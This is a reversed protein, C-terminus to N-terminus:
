HQKRVAQILGLVSWDSDIGILLLATLRMVVQGFLAIIILYFTTISYVDKFNKYMVTYQFTYKVFLLLVVMATLILVWQIVATVDVM